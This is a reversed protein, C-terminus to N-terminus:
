GYFSCSPANDLMAQVDGVFDVPLVFLQCPFGQGVRPMIAIYQADPSFHSWAVWGSHIVPNLVQRDGDSINFTIVGEDTVAIIEDEDDATFAAGTIIEDAFILPSDSAAFQQPEYSATADWVYLGTELGEFQERLLIREGSASIDVYIQTGAYFNMLLTTQLQDLDPVYDTIHWLGSVGGYYGQGIMIASKNNDSWIFWRQSVNGSEILIHESTQLDALAMRNKCGVEGGCVEDQHTYIAYRGDHSIHAVDSTAQLESQQDSNLLTVLPSQNFATLTDDELNYRYYTVGNDIGTFILFRGDPSWSTENYSVREGTYIPTPVASSASVASTPSEMAIALGVSLGVLTLFVTFFNHKRM